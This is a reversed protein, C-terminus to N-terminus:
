DQMAKTPPLVKRKETSVIRGDNIQFEVGLNDSIVQLEEVSMLNYDTIIM